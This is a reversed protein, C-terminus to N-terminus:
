KNVKFQRCQLKENRNLTKELFIRWHKPKRHDILQFMM